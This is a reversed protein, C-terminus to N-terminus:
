CRMRCCITLIKARFISGIFVEESRMVANTTIIAKNSTKRGVAALAAVTVTITPGLQKQKTGADTVIWGPSVTSQVQLELPWLLVDPLGPIGVPSHSEPMILWPAVKVCVKLV